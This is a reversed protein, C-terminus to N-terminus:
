SALLMSQGSNLNYVQKYSHDRSEFEFRLPSTKLSVSASADPLDYAQVEVGEDALYEVIPQIEDDECYEDYIDFLTDNLTQGYRRGLDKLAEEYDESLSPNNANLDVNNKITRLKIITQELDSM